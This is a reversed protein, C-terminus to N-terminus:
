QGAAVAIASLATFSPRPKNNNNMFGFRGTGDDHSQYWWIGKVHPDALLESYAAQLRSAQERKSCAGLGAGCRSLDYGIETVYFPPISGLVAKAVAEDAAASAVGFDDRDNEGVAGYPHISIGNALIAAALGPVGNVADRLWGGGSADESWGSPDSWSGLPIDGTMNFLLPVDIGAANMDQVAALYMRGYQVPEAVGGKLYAENSAEAISIGPDHELEAVVEAGWTSANLASLPTGDDTNNVIALVKFGDSLSQSLTNNLAGLEVRNWTIQGQLITRAANRGWGTADNTGIIPGAPLALASNAGRRDPATGHRTHSAVGASSTGLAAQMGDAPLNAGSSPLLLALVAVLLLAAAGVAIALSAPWQGGHDGVATTRPM